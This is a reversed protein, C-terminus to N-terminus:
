VSDWEQDTLFVNEEPQVVNKYNYKPIKVCDVMDPKAAIPVNVTTKKVSDVKLLM